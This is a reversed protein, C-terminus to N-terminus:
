GTTVLHTACPVVANTSVANKLASRPMQSCKRACHMKCPASFAMDQDIIYLQLAAQDWGGDRHGKRGLTGNEMAM